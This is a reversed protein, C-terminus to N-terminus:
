FHQKLFTLVARNFLAPQEINAIHGVGPLCLYDAGAIRSAMKEVVTPPANLDLEGALCLTPVAIQGLESLRNFSVIASLAARYAEAPVQAMLSRAESMRAPDAEPAFMGPVLTEALGAMGLGQDLPAFRSQLFQQQWDGGPKGFAPSTSHLVLGHVLTRYLAAFEQAIMGGMSHGLLVNRQAGIHEILTKLAGALMANSCPQVAPSAGYGPMDWAITKFGQDALAAQNHAWAEKGGGVGHLLFIATDGDGRELYAPLTHM